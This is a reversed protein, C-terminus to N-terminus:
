PLSFFCTLSYSTILCFMSLMKFASFTLRFPFFFCLASLSACFFSLVRFGSINAVAGQRKTPTKQQFTVCYFRSKLPLPILGKGRQKQTRFARCDFAKKAGVAYCSCATEEHARSSTQPYDAEPLGPLIQRQKVKVCVGRRVRYM